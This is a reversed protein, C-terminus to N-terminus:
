ESHQARTRHRHALKRPRVLGVLTVLMGILTVIHANYGDRGFYIELSGIWDSPFAHYIIDLSGGVALIILGLQMVRPLSFFEAIARRVVNM